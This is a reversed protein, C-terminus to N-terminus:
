LIAQAITEFVPLCDKAGSTGDECLITLAYAPAEAPFFGSYWTNLTEEGSKYVGTQATATKGGCDKFTLADTKSAAYVLMERVRRAASRPVAQQAVASPQESLQGADDVIGSILRPERYVGDAAIAATVAAIQLPSATLRGQGFALNARAADTSLESADPVTGASGTIEPALVNPAGLGLRCSMDLLADAPFQQALHIFYTNCSRYLADALTLTGHGSRLHCHFLVDDQLTEGTCTYAFSPSVGQELAAAAVVMKYVSGVSVANLARNLFPADTDNLSEGVQRVDFEPVSVMARIDGTRVDLLVAAGKRMGCALMADRVAAQMAKDLTLVVGRPSLVGDDRITERGGRLVRGAGDLPYTVSATRMQLLEEYGKELGCVGTGTGDTYGALHPILFSTGYRVPRRFLHVGRGQVASTIPVVAPLGRGFLQLANQLDAEDTVPRLLEPVEPFPAAAAATVYTENVFPRMRRDYIFGRGWATEVTRTSGPAAARVEQGASLTYLRLLLLAISFILCFFVGVARKM